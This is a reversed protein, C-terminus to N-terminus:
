NILKQGSHASAAAARARKAEQNPQAGPDPFLHSIKPGEWLEELARLIQLVKRQQEPTLKNYAELDLKDAVKRPEPM